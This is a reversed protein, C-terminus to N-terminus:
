HLHLGAAWSPPRPRHPAERELGMGGPCPIPQGRGWGGDLAGLAGWPPGRPKKPELLAARM